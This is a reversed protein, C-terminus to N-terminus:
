QLIYYVFEDQKKQYQENKPHEKHYPTSEFRRSNAERIRFGESM